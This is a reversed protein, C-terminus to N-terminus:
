DRPRDDDKRPGRKLSNELRDAYALRGEPTMALIYDRIVGDSFQMRALARAQLRAAVDSVAAESFPEARLAAVLAERDARDARWEARFDYGTADFAQRLAKRDEHAIGGSWPGFGSHRPASHGGKDDGASRLAIGAVGGIVAVNLCLSAILLWRLRRSVAPKTPATDSATM